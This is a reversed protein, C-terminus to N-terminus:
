SRLCPGAARTARRLAPVDDVDDEVAGTVNDALYTPLDIGTAKEIVKGLYDTSMGYEFRTGPDAVLPATFAAAQGALVNPTGTASEWAYVEPSWFWYTLGSTHTILQRVTAASATPRLVPTDGDMRELVQLHAFEPVFDAVPADLEVRGDEVFQLAGVTTIMKTMSALRYTTDASVVDDHDPHRRGAGGEYIVGDPGAVVACLNPAVGRDVAQALLDDITEKM